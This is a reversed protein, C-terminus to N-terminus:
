RRLNRGGYKAGPSADIREDEAFKKNQDKKEVRKGFEIL